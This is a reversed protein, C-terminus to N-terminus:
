NLFVCFSCEIAKIQVGTSKKLQTKRLVSDESSIEVYQIIQLFDNHIAYPGDRFDNEPINYSIEVETETRQHTCIADM